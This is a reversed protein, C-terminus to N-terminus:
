QRSKLIRYYHTNSVGMSMAEKKSIAKTKIKMRLEDSFKCFHHDEGTKYTGHKIKDRNNEAHTDWRLNDANNNLSNGDNHCCEYLPPALGAFAMLVLRGGQIRFKRKNVGLNYYDYGGCIYGKLVRGKYHHDVVKGCTNSYKRVVRDKSRVRGKNSAEYHLGYAPIPKWIEM